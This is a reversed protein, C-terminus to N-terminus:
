IEKITQQPSYIKDDELCLNEDFKQFEENIGGMAIFGFLKWTSRRNVLDSKTQMKDFILSVNKQYKKLSSISADEALWKIIDPNFGPGTATFKTYRKLTNVHPLKLFELKKSVM